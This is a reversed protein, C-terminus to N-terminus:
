GSQSISAIKQTSLLLQRADAIKAISVPKREASFDDFSGSYL